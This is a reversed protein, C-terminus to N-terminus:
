KSMANIVKYGVQAIPMINEYMKQRLLVFDARIIQLLFHMPFSDEYETYANFVLPFVKYTHAAEDAIMNKITNMRQEVEVTTIQINYDQNNEPGDIGLAKEIDGYYLQLYDLYSIHKCAEYTTENLLNQKNIIIEDDSLTCGVKNASIDLRNVQSEIQRGITDDLKGSKETKLQDKLFELANKQAQILACKYINNM